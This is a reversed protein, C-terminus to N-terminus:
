SGITFRSVPSAKDISSPLATAISLKRKGRRLDHGAGHLPRDGFSRFLRNLFHRGNRAQYDNRRDKADPPGCSLVSLGTRCCTAVLLQSGSPRPAPGTRSPLRNPLDRYILRRKSLIWRDHTSGSACSGRRRHSSQCGSSRGRRCHARGKRDLRSRLSHTNRGSQRRRSSLAIVM